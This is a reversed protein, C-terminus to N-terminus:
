LRAGPSVGGPKKNVNEMDERRISKGVKYILVFLLVSVLDISGAFTAPNGFELNFNFTSLRFVYPQGHIEFSFIQLAYFLKQSWIGSPRLRWFKYTSFLFLPHFIFLFLSFETHHTAVLEYVITIWSSLVAILNFTAILSVLFRYSSSRTRMEPQAM